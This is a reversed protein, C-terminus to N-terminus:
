VGSQRQRAQTLLRSVAVGAAKDGMTGPCVKFLLGCLVAADPPVHRSRPGQLHGLLMHRCMQREAQKRVLGLRSQIESREDRTAKLEVKLKPNLRLPSWHILAGEVDRWM